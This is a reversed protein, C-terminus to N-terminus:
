YYTDLRPVQLRFIASFARPMITMVVMMVTSLAAVSDVFLNVTLHIEHVIKTRRARSVRRAYTMRNVVSKSIQYM